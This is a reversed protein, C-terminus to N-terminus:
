YGEKNAATFKMSLIEIRIRDGNLATNINEPQIEIDVDLGSVNFYGVGKGTIKITGELPIIPNEKDSM